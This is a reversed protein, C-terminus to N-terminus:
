FRSRALLLQFWCFRSLVLWLSSFGALVVRLFQLAIRFSGFNGFQPFRFNEALKQKEFKSDLHGFKPMKPSFTNVKEDECFKADYAIRFASIEFKEISGLHGFKPM